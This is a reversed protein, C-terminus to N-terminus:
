FDAVILSPCPIVNFQFDRRTTGLFINGRYEKVCVGVVFQGITTPTATLIGTQPNISLNVGGAVGNLMNSQSYPSIFTVPNYPPNYPPQPIPDSFSAGDLPTCLEYVLSDGDIDTASHDFM